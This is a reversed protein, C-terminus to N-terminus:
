RWTYPYGTLIIDPKTRINPQDIESPFPNKNLNLEVIDSTRVWTAELIAPVWIEDVARGKDVANNAHLHVLSHTRRLLGIDDLHDPVGHFEVVIQLIRCALDSPGTTLQRIWPYEGGEIDMKVFVNKHTELDSQWTSRSINEKHFFPELNKPGPWEPITGDCISCHSLTDPYKEAFATEFSTDQGEPCSHTTPSAQVTSSSM